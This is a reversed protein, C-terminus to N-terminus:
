KNFSSSLSFIFFTVLRATMYFLSSKIADNDMIYGGRGKCCDKERTTTEISVIMKNLIIEKIRNVCMCWM